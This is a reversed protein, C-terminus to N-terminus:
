GALGSLIMQLTQEIEEQSYANRMKNQMYMRTMTLMDVQESGEPVVAEAKGAEEGEVGTTMSGYARGMEIMGEAIMRLAKEGSVTAEEWPMPQLMSLAPAALYGQARTLFEDGDREKTWGFESVALMKPYMLKEIDEPGACWETWMPMECGAINEEPVPVGKVDPKYMVIARLPADAYSSCYFLNSESIILRRGKELEPAIYSPGPAMETWYQVIAKPDLIGAAAADNWVIATKGRSEVHEVLKETFYCQLEEYTKFGQRRMVANCDPCDHWATKPAEDGGLHIYRSPFLDMLEDLLECLFSYVATKGACCIRDHVGFTNKVNLPLGTCTYQPFAALIASSHGPLDVEPVVDVGRAAAFAVVDRIEDQTYYGGYTDGPQALGKLVVPDDPSLKRWSSVANLEPFRTSEVRWGQDESLHWHFQNMKLLSAQEIIKKVEDACFFHRCVDLMVGRRALRPSDTIKGIPAAGSNQALLQYLTTLAYNYGKQGSATIFAGDQSICLEYAEEPLSDSVTLSIVKEAQDDRAYDGLKEMRQSFVAEAAAFTGDMAYRAPFLFREEDNLELIGNVAPVLYANM